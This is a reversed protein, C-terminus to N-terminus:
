LCADQPSIDEVPPLREYESKQFSRLKAVLLIALKERGRVLETNLWHSLEKSLITSM